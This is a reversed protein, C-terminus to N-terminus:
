PKNLIAKALLVVLQEQPHWAAGRFLIVSPEVTDRLALLAGFDTDASLLVRHESAARAFVEEDTAAELGYERVHNADHGGQRLGQALVPSLANDVLFRM